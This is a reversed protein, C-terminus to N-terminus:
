MQAFKAMMKELKQEYGAKERVIKATVKDTLVPEYHMDALSTWKKASYFLENHDATVVLFIGWGESPVHWRGLHQLASTGNAEVDDDWAMSCCIDYGKERSEIDHFQYKCIYLTENDKAEDKTRDYSFKEPPNKGTVMEKLKNHDMIPVVEVDCSEESWNFAWKYIDDAAPAEAIIHGSLNGLNHWRGVVTVNDGTDRAHDEETLSAFYVSTESKRDAHLKWRMYFLPMIDSIYTRYNIILVSTSALYLKSRGNFSSCACQSEFSIWSRSKLFEACHM